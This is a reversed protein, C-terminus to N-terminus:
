IQKKTFTYIRPRKHVCGLFLLVNLSIYSSVTFRACGCCLVMVYVRATGVKAFKTSNARFAEVYAIAAPKHEYIADSFSFMVVSDIQSELVVLPTRVHPYLTTPEGCRWSELRM